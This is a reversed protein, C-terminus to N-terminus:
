SVSVASYFVSQFFSKFVVMFSENFTVRSKISPVWIFAMLLAFLAVSTRIELEMSRPPVSRIILYYGAAIAAAAGMFLLRSPQGRFFREWIMQAAAGLVAGVACTWIYKTYDTHIQIRVAVLIAAAALFAATVPYRSVSDTLGELRLRLKGLWKIQTM